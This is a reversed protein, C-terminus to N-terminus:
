EEEVGIIKERIVKGTFVDSFVWIITAVLALVGFEYSVGSEVSKKIFEGIFLIPFFPHNILEHTIDRLTRHDSSMKM